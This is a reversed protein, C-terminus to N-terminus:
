GLIRGILGGTYKLSVKPFQRAEKIMINRIKEVEIIDAGQALMLARNKIDQETPIPQRRALNKAINYISDKLEDLWRENFPTMSQLAVKLDRIQTQKQANTLSAITNSWKLCQLNREKCMKSVGDYKNQFHQQIHPNNPDINLVDSKTILILMSQRVQKGCILFLKEITPILSSREHQISETLIFGKIEKVDRLLETIKLKIMNLIDEDSINLRSDGFGPVDILILNCNLLPSQNVDYRQAKSTVSNGAGTGVEAVGKGAIANIFSSKGSQSPGVIIFSGLNQM